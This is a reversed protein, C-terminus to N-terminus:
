KNALCDGGINYSDWVCKCDDIDKCEHCTFQKELFYIHDVLGKLAHSSWKIRSMEGENYEHIIRQYDRLKEREIKM